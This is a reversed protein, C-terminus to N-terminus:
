CLIVSRKRGTNHVLRSGGARRRTENVASSSVENEAQLTLSSGPPHRRAEDVASSELGANEATQTPTPFVLVDGPGALLATLNAM